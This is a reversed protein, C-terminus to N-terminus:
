RAIDRAPPRLFREVLLSLADQLRDATMFEAMPRHAVIGDGLALLMRVVVDLDIGPDVLGAEIGRRLNRAFAEHVEDTNRKFLERIEPNRYTEAMIETCLAAQEGQAMKSFFTRAVAVLGALPDEARDLEDFFAKNREREQEAIAAIIALKSPFYRYLNGASMGAEACIDQMSASHFGSRGFCVIAAALIRQQQQTRLDLDHADM